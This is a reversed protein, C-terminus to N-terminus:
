IEKHFDVGFNGPCNIKTLNSTGRTWIRLWLFGM